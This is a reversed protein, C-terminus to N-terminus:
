YSYRTAIDRSLRAGEGLFRDIAVGAADTCSRYTQEYTFYGRNFSAIMRGRREPGPQEAELLQEMEGRWRGSEAAAGCLPRLYHLAGLIESLRAMEGEYPPPAGEIRPPEVQPLRAGAKPLAPARPVVPRPAGFFDRPPPPLDRRPVDRPPLAERPPFLQQFLGQAAAPAALVLALSCALLARRIM